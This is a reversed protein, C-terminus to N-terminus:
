PQVPPDPLIAKPCTPGHSGDDRALCRNCRYHGIITDFRWEHAIGEPPAPSANGETDAQPSQLAQIAAIINAHWSEHERPYTGLVLEIRGKIYDWGEVQANLIAIEKKADELDQFVTGSHEPRDGEADLMAALLDDTERELARYVCNDSHLKTGDVLPDRYRCVSCSFQQKGESFYIV